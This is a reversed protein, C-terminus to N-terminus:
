EAEVGEANVAERWREVEVRLYQAFQQPTSTQMEVGQSGFQALMDPSRAANNAAQNLRQVIPEPTGAPLLMGHWTPASFGPMVTENLTPVDPLVSSRSMSTVAIARARQSQVYPLASSVADLMFQTQGSLFDV